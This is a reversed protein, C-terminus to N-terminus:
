AFPENVIDTPRGSISRAALMGAVVAGEVSGIYIGNRTWDGAIALNAYGSEDPALRVGNTGAYAMTYRALPGSNATIHQFDFRAEGEAEHIDVLKKWEIHAPDDPRAAGPWLTGVQNRLFFLANARAQESQKSPYDHDEPGPPYDPAVLSGFVSSIARPIEGPPWTEGNMLLSNDEWTTFPQVHNSLIPHPYPWGLGKLGVNFWLRLSQTEVGKIERVMTEWSSRAAVIESCAFPITGIPMAFIVRDFDAGHEIPYEEGKWTTYFSELDYDEMPHPNRELGWARDIQSYDPRLPWCPAGDVPHFPRYTSAGHALKVQRELWVRRIVGSEEDPELRRVRHFYEFRVGREELLKCMPAIVSDGVEDALQYTFAGEYSLGARVLGRVTAGASINPARPDGREFAVISNYWTWVLPSDVSQEDAGHRLLWQRFDWQDLGDFGTHGFVGDDIAGIGLTTSLDAMIWLRLAKISRKQFPRLVVRWFGRWFRFNAAVLRLARERGGSLLRLGGWLVALVVTGFAQYIQTWGHLLRDLLAALRPHKQPLASLFGDVRNLAKWGFLMQFLFKLAMETYCWLPLWVGGKGPPQSNTPLQVRWDLTQDGSKQQAVIFSVPRLAEEFTGFEHNGRENLEEYTRRLLRLANAYCGFIYHSGNQLIRNTPPERGTACKGGARWGVQYVTVDYRKRLGETDTLSLAAVLGAPGGGLIAVRERREAEIPEHKPNQM